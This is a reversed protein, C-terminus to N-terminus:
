TYNQIESFIMGEKEGTEQFNYVYKIRIGKVLMIVNFIHYLQKKIKKLRIFLIFEINLNLSSKNYLM